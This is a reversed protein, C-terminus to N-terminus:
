PTLRSFVFVSNHTASLTESVLMMGNAQFEDVIDTRRLDHQWAANRRDVVNPYHEVTCYSVTCSNCYKAIESIFWAYDKVYELCGSVFAVDAYVEPFEYKNFDCVITDEGRSVYDVPFYRCNKLYERLWMPGCGLDLVSAGEPIYRAMLEVRERWSAEFREVYQWRPTPWKVMIMRLGPVRALLVRLKRLIRKLM